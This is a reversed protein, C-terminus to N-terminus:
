DLNELNEWASRAALEEDFERSLHHSKAMQEKM